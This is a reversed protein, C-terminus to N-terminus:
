NMPCSQDQHIITLTCIHFHIAETKHLNNKKLIADKVRKYGAASKVKHSTELIGDMYINSGAGIVTAYYHYVFKM